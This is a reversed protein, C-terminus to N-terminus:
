VREIGLLTMDLAWITWQIARFNISHCTTINIGIPISSFNAGHTLM